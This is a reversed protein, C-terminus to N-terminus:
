DAVMLESYTAACHRLHITIFPAPVKEAAERYSSMFLVDALADNLQKATFAQLALILFVV